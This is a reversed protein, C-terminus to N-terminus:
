NVRTLIKDSLDILINKYFSDGISNLANKARNICCEAEHYAEEIAYSDKLLRVLEKFDGESMGGNDFKKQLWEKYEEQGILKLVPLTVNGERIDSGIPKGLEKENGIFDLIDDIIQFAYGINLGYEKLVEIKELSAEATAGGVQCCSAILVGTKKYIRKYYDEVTQNLNFKMAAQSIEGDCMQGIAHVVYVMSQVLRNVSLIEFAKAFLYDGVLVSGHNGIKKNLSPRNRRIDSKDIIDDHVLSAMHIFECAAAAQITRTKLEGFCQATCLVLLPRIRKGGADLLSKGIESIYGDEELIIRALKKEVEELGNIKSIHFKDRNKEKVAQVTLDRM